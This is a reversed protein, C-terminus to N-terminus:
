SADRGHQYGEAPLNACNPSSRVRIWVYSLMLGVLYGCQLAALTAFMFAMAALLSWQARLMLVICVVVVGASAAVVSPVRLRLGLLIGTGTAAAMLWLM